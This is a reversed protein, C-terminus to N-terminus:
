AVSGCQVERCKVMKVLEKHHARFVTIFQVNHHFNV